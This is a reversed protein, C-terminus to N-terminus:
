TIDIGCRYLPVEQGGLRYKYAEAGKLFDFRARGMGISERICLVKSLLGVSLYDYAPDYGSNYLYIANNYDFCIVSAMERGDLELIGLKLLGAGSMEDVILRFFTARQETLFEAKGARSETFLKFFREMFGPVASIDGVLRFNVEGTEALRRLKRKVEHRQKPKLGGLYEEWTAPLRTEVTVEAVACEAQCGRSRAINVMEKCVAADPRVHELELRRIGGSKLDDLLAAFFGGESGPTIIFDQYDCVDTDGIFYAADGKVMLPAIGIVRDAERIVRVRPEWGGGFVRWWARLWVPTVFVSSWNLKRGSGTYLPGLSELTAGGVSYSMKGTILRDRGVGGPLVVITVCEM